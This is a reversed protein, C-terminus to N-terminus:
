KQKWYVKNDLDDFEYIDAKYKYKKNHIVKYEDESFFTIYSVSDELTHWGITAVLKEEGEYNYYARM